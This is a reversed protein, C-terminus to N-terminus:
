SQSVGSLEGLHREIVERTQDRLRSTDARTLGNTELPTDVIVTVHGGRVWLSSPPWARYTGHITVPLVPLRGTIAMTFAGKKFSGLEGRRSRTGEPYIILSRGAAVLSKARSNIQEYTAGRSQRDVSVIGIAKMASSLIPVRFLEKKALFRIPVPVALFCAMIDLNSVHNAVVVYSRGRDLDENARVDITVGAAALWSRSWSQAVKEIMPSTPSFRSLVIVAASAIVTVILGVLWTLLTRPLYRLFYM